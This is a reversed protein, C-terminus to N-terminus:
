GVAFIGLHLGYLCHVSVILFSRSVSSTVFSDISHFIWFRSPQLVSLLSLWLQHSALIRVSYQSALFYFSSTYLAVTTLYKSAIDVCYYVILNIVNYIKVQPHVTFGALSWLGLGIIPVWCAADTAVLLSMRWAMASESLSRHRILTETARHTMKAVFFMWLYSGSILLLSGLNVVLVCEDYVFDTLHIILYTCSCYSM